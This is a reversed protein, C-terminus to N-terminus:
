APEGETILDPLRYSLRGDEGQVKALVGHKVANALCKYVSIEAVDFKVAVDRITLEEEPNALFFDIVRQPVTGARPKYPTATAM